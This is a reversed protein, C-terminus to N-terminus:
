LHGLRQRGSPTTLSVLSNSDKHKLQCVRVHMYKQLKHHYNASVHLKLSLTALLALHSRDSGSSSWHTMGMGLESSVALREEWHCFLLKRQPGAPHGSPMWLWDSQKCETMRLVLRFNTKERSSFYLFDPSLRTPLRM